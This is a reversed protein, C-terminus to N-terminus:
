AGLGLFVDVVTRIFAVSAFGDVGMRCVMMAQVINFLSIFLFYKWKYM